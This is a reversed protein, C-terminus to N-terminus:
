QYMTCIRMTARKCKKQASPSFCKIPTSANFYQEIRATANPHDPNLNQTRVLVHHIDVLHCSWCERYIELEDQFSHLFYYLTNMAPNPRSEAISIIVNTGGMQRCRSNPQTHSSSSCTIPLRQHHPDISVFSHMGLYERGPAPCSQDTEWNGVLLCTLCSLYGTLVQVQSLHLFPLLTQGYQM